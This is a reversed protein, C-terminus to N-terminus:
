RTVASTAWGDQRPQIPYEYGPEAELNHFLTVPGSRWLRQIFKTRLNSM